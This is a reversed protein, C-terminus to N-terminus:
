SFNLTRSLKVQGGPTALVRVEVSRLMADEPLRFRGEVKQYFRFEVAGGEEGNGEPFTFTNITSGQQARAVNCGLNARIGSPSEVSGGPVLKVDFARRVRVRREVPGAHEVPGM